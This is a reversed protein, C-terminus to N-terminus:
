LVWYVRHDDDGQFPTLHRLKVPDYALSFLEKNDEIFTRINIKDYGIAKNVENLAELHDKITKDQSISGINCSFKM